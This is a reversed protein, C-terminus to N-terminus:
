RRFSATYIALALLSLASIGFVMSLNELMGGLVAGVLNSALAPALDARDRLSSAFILGGVFLPSLLFGTMASLALPGGGLAVGPPVAYNAVLLLGLVAYMPGRALSGRWNVVINAVLILALIGGITIASVRWTAGYLLGLQAITRTEVLLFGAGLFFLHRDFQVRGRFFLAVLLAGVLSVGISAKVVTPPIVRDRLYLFPWDDTPNPGLSQTTIQTPPLGVQMEPRAGPQPLGPGALYLHGDYSGPATLPPAGWAERIMAELRSAIWPQEVYFSVYLVGDTTLRGLAERLAEVTYVYNDLRINSSLTSFLSSHADLLGFVILDFSPGARKLYARVDDIIIRVRPDDYPREPHLRQGLEVIRPDIEVAVVEEAGNRLAAAVDNGTGAGAVLVRRPRKWAYPYNYAFSAQRAVPYASTIAPLTERRLDLVHQYYLNQVRLEWAPSVEPGGATNMPQIKAVEIKNYPSWVTRREARHDVLVMGAVAAGALLASALRVWWPSCLYAFAVAFSLFASFWPPISLAAAVGFLLIGGLAGAVNATYAPLVPLNEMFTGAIQGLPVTTLVVLGFVAAILAYFATLDSTAVAVNVGLNSEPGGPGSVAKEPLAVFISGVSLTVALLVVAAPYLSRSSRSLAFGIGLGLFSAILALNKVYALPRVQADLWRILLLEVFLGLGSLLAVHLM